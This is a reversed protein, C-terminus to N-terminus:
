QCKEHVIVPAASKSRSTPPVAPCASTARLNPNVPPEESLAGKRAAAHIPRVTAPAPKEHLSNQASSFGAVRVSAFSSSVATYSVATDGPISVCVHLISTM